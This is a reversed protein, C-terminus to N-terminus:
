KTHEQRQYMRAELAKKQEEYLNKLGRLNLRQEIGFVYFTQVGKFAKHYHVKVQPIEAVRLACSNDIAAIRLLTACADNATVPDELRRAVTTVNIRKLSRNLEEGLWEDYIAFHQLTHRVDIGLELNQMVQQSIYRQVQPGESGLATLLQRERYSRLPSWGPGSIHKCRPKLHLILHKALLKATRAQLTQQWTVSTNLNPVAFLEYYSSNENRQKAYREEDHRSLVKDGSVIYRGDKDIRIVGESNLLYQLEREPRDECIHRWIDDVAFCASVACLRGVECL